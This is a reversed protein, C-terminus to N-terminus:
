MTSLIEPGDGLINGQTRQGSPRDWVKFLEYYGFREYFSYWDNEM